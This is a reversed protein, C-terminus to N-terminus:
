GYGNSIYQKCKGDTSGGTTSRRQASYTETDVGAKKNYYLKAIAGPETFHLLQQQFVTAYENPWKTSM